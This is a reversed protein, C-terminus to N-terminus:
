PQVPQMPQLFARVDAAVQRRSDAGIYPMHGSAYTRVVVRAPDLGAHALMQEAGGVTTVLDFWGTGVFLRTSPSRRMATALDEAHDRGPVPGRGAGAGYDWRANVDAFEIANYALPLSVGLDDRLYHNIASVFGPVYQGMAPDDAVPDGASAALPLTYRADYLGVQLGDDRLVENAFLAPTVLLKQALISEARLGTLGALTDAVERRQAEPMRSGAHLALVYAHDAFARARAVHSEFSVLNGAADQRAVKGHWWATAAMASLSTLANRRADGFSLAQGLLLVGSVPASEMRGDATPGGALQRAVVAARITGYSEGMLYRPANWRQHRTLWDRIFASTISADQATGLFQAETGAKLIRSFGTGPPDFLVIDAVDLPSDDNDVLRFPPTTRPDIELAGSAGDMALRRPGVFGLHLWLSASGPGGNFVFLVPRAANDKGDTRIYSTSVLSATREGQADVIFTERVSATYAIRQGGISIHHRSVSEFGVPALDAACALASFLLLVVAVGASLWRRTGHPRAWASASARVPRRGMLSADV